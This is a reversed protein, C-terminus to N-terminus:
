YYCFERFGGKRMIAHNNKKIYKLYYDNMDTLHENNSIAFELAEEITFFSSYKTQLHNSDAACRVIFPKKTDFNVLLKM